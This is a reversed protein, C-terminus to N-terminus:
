AAGSPKLCVIREKVIKGFVCYAQATGVHSKRKKEIKGRGVKDAVGGGCATGRRSTLFDTVKQSRKGGLM